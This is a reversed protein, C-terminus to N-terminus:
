VFIRIADTFPSRCIPCNNAPLKKACTLCLYAHGCPVFCSRNETGFCIGCTWKGDDARDFGSGVAGSNGGGGGNSNSNSNSFAQQPQPKRLQHKEDLPGYNAHNGYTDMLQLRIPDTTPPRKKSDTNKAVANQYTASIPTIVPKTDVIAPDARTSAVPSTPAVPQCVAPKPKTIITWKPPHQHDGNFTSGSASHAAAVAARGNTAVNPAIQSQELKPEPEKEFQAFPDHKKKKKKKKKQPQHHQQQKSEATEVAVPPISASSSPKPSGDNVLRRL